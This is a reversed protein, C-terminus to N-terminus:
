DYDVGIIERLRLEISKWEISENCQGALLLPPVGKGRNKLEHYTLHHLLIFTPIEFADSYALEMWQTAGDYFTSPSVLFITAHSKEIRKKLSKSIDKEDKKQDRKYTWVRVELDKMLVEFAFQLLSAEFADEGSYSLFINHPKDAM